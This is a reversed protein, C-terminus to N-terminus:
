KESASLLAADIKKRMTRRETAYGLERYFASAGANFEWVNLQIEDIGRERAWGEAAAMLARGTGARRQDARVALADVEVFHRPVIVPRDPAHLVRLKAFGAIAGALEAVLWIAEPEALVAEFEARELAHGAPARFIYPLARRHLEHIEDFVAAVGAYDDAAAPRITIQATM